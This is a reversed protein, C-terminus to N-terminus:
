PILNFPRGRDNRYIVFDRHDLTFVTQIQERAAVYVLTLDALQPQIDAYKAALSSIAPVAAADLEVCHVLGQEMLGMLKPISEPKDRLLWAAETLVPWTTFFPTSLVQSEDVCRDHAADDEALIAVLPGTDVVIRDRNM